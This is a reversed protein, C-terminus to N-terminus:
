HMYDCFRICHCLNMTLIYPKSKYYMTKEIEVYMGQLIVIPSTYQKEEMFYLCTLYWPSYYDTSNISIDFLIFERQRQNQHYKCIVNNDVTLDVSSSTSWTYDLVEFHNHPAVCHQQWKNCIWSVLKLWLSM